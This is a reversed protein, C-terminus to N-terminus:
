FYHWYNGDLLCSVLFLRFPSLYSDLNVKSSQHHHKMAGPLQDNIDIAEEYYDNAIKKFKLTM